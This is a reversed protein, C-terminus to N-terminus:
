FRGLFAVGFVWKICSWYKVPLFHHNGRWNILFGSCCIYVQPRNSGRRDWVFRRTRVIFILRSWVKHVNMNFLYLTRIAVKTTMTEGPLFEQDSGFCFRRKIVYQGRLSDCMKLNGGLNCFGESSQRLSDLSKGM